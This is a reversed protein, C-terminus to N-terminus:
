FTFFYGRPQPRRKLATWFLAFQDRGLYGWADKLVNYELKPRVRHVCCGVACGDAVRVNCHPGQLAATVAPEAKGTVIYDRGVRYQRVGPLITLLNRDARDVAQCVRLERTSILTVGLELDVVAEGQMVKRIYIEGVLRYASGVRRLLFPVHGGFLICCIDGSRLLTPGTGILGSRTTFLRKGSVIDECDALFAQASGEEAAEEAAALGEPLIECPGAHKPDSTRTLLQLRFAAFDKLDQEVRFTSPFLCALAMVLEYLKEQTSMMSFARLAMAAAIPWEDISPKGVPRRRTEFRFENTYEDITDFAFGQVQLMTSARTFQLSRPFGAHAEPNDCDYQFVGVSSITNTREWTPIWSPYERTLNDEDLHRVASLVRLNQSQQLLTIALEHYIEWHSKQYDPEIILGGSIQASPHGLLAFVFDRRDSALQVRTKELMDLFDPKDISSPHSTSYHEKEPFAHFLDSPVIGYYNAVDPQEVRIKLSLRILDDFDIEQDQDGFLALVSKALGAEQVVWLRDFWPQQFLEGLASFFSYTEVSADTMATSPRSEESDTSSKPHECFRQILTSLDEDQDFFKFPNGLGLWVIVREAASYISAMQRVQHGVEKSDSQNICIADAWFRKVKLPDRVRQLADRLNTPIKAKRGDCIIAKKDSPSGWAYSMAEYQPAEDLTTIHLQCQIYDDEEAVTRPLRRSHAPGKFRKCTDEETRVRSGDWNLTTKRRKVAISSNQRRRSPTVGLVAYRGSRVGFDVFLRAAEAKQQQLQEEELGQQHQRDRAEKVKRLSWFVAGGHYEEEVDLPLARGRKRRQRENILAEKLRVNEHEALVSRISLKRQDRDAVAHDVLQRIKRWDSASLASSDSDSSSGQIPQSNFRKLIVELNLPSLGTAEFAKLITEKKFLAEWAAMFMPYFDRKSMSTLGQCREMFAAVQGSYTSSLPKFM